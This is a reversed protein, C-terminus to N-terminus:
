EQDVNSSREGVRVSVSVGIGGTYMHVQLAHGNDGRGGEDSSHGTDGM